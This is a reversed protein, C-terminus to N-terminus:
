RVGIVSQIASVTGDVILDVGKQGLAATAKAPSAGYVGNAPTALKQDGLKDSRVMDPATALELSTDSGSAHIGIDQDTFGSSRLFASYPGRSLAYYQILGIAKAKGAWEKNLSDAVNTLDSQYGGHDGILVITKFGAHRLSRGTDKLMSIFIADSITLTGPFKMHQTPPDIEGEPVYAVTPAVLCHGLKEAILKALFSVRANHKGLAMYPGNQETGGIPVIVTTSGQAIQDRLEMWTLNEMFVDARASASLFVLALTLSLGKLM